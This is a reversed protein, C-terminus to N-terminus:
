AAKLVESTIRALFDMERDIIQKSRDASVKCDLNYNEQIYKTDIRKKLLRGRVQKGEHTVRKEEVDFLCDILVLEGECRKHEFKSYVSNVVAKLQGNTYKKGTELKDILAEYVKKNLYDRPSDLSNNPSELLSVIDLQKPLLNALKRDAIHSGIEEITDISYVDVKSAVTLFKNVYRNLSQREVRSLESVEIGETRKEDKWDEFDSSEIISEGIINIIEKKFKPSQSSEAALALAHVTNEQFLEKAQIAAIRKDQKRENQYAEVSKLITSTDVETNFIKDIKSIDIARKEVHHFEALRQMKQENTEGAARKNEFACVCGFRNFSMDNNIVASVDNLLNRKSIDRDKMTLLEMPSFGYLKKKAEKYSNMWRKRHKEYTDNFGRKQYDACRFYLVEFSDKKRLRGLAQRINEIWSEGFIAFIGTNENVINVSEYAVSTMFVIKSKYHTKKTELDSYNGYIPIENSSTLAKWSETKEAKGGFIYDTDFGKEIAYPILQKLIAEKNNMYVFHVKNEQSDTSEILTKAVTVYHSLAQENTLNQGGEEIRKLKLKAKEIKANQAELEEGELDEVNNLRRLKGRAQEIKRQHLNDNEIIYSKVKIQPNIKREFRVVDINYETNFSEFDTGTLFIKKCPTHMIANVTESRTINNNTIIKHIEDVFITDDENILKSVALFSPFCINAADVSPFIADFNARELKDTNQDYPQIKLELKSFNNEKNGYENTKADNSFNSPYLVAFKDKVGKIRKEHHIFNYATENKGSGTPVYMGLPKQPEVNRFTDYIFQTQERNECLYKESKITKEISQKVRGILNSLRFPTQSPEASDHILRKTIFEGQLEGLYADSPIVAKLEEAIAEKQDINAFILDDAGKERGFNSHAIELSINHKQAAYTLWKFSSIFAGARSKNGENELFDNDVVFTLKEPKHAEIFRLIEPLFDATHPTFYSRNKDNARKKKWQEVTLGEKDAESKQWEKKTQGEKNRIVTGSNIGGLGIKPLGILNVALTKYEGEGIFLHEFNAEFRKSIPNIFSQYLPVLYARVGVALGDIKPSEYKPVEIQRGRKAAKITAEEVSIPSNRWRIFATDEGWSLVRMKKLGCVVSENYEFDYYGFISSEDSKGYIAKEGNPLTNATKDYGLHDFFPLLRSEHYGIKRSKAPKPFYATKSKSSKSPKIQSFPDIEEFDSINLNAYKCITECILKVEDKGVYSIQLLSKIVAWVGGEGIDIHGKYNKVIWNGRLNYVRIGLSKDTLSKSKEKLKIQPYFDSLISRFFEKTNAKDIIRDVQYSIFIKKEVIEKTSANNKIHSTTTTLTNM